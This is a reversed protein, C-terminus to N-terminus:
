FGGPGLGKFFCFLVLFVGVFLCVVVFFFGDIELVELLCWGSSFHAPNFAVLWILM